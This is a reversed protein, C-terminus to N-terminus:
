GEGNDGSGRNGLDSMDARSFRAYAEGRYRSRGAYRPEGHCQVLHQTYRGLAEMAPTGGAAEDFTAELRWASRALPMHAVRVGLDQLLEAAMAASRHLANDRKRVVSSFAKRTGQVRGDIILRGGDEELQGHRGFLWLLNLIERRRKQIRIQRVYLDAYGTLIRALLRHLVLLPTFDEGSLAISDPFESMRTRLPMVPTPEVLDEAELPIRIANLHKMGEYPEIFAVYDEEPIPEGLREEVKGRHDASVSVTPVDRCPFAACYACNEVGNYLACQRVACNRIYVFGETSQCGSCQRLNKPNPSWNIYRAMGRACWRRTEDTLNEVYLTCQGCNNGCKAILDM